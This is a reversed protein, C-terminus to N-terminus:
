VNLLMSDHAPLMACNGEMLANQVGSLLLTRVSDAQWEFVLSANAVKDLFGLASEGLLGDVTVVFAVMSARYKDAMEQYKGIKDREKDRIAALKPANDSKINNLKQESLRAETYQNVVTVDILYRQGGVTADIDVRSGDKLSMGRPEVVATHLHTRLQRAIADRILNHRRNREGGTASCSLAEMTQVRDGCERSCKKGFRPQNILGLRVQVCQKFVPDKPPPAGTPRLFFSAEGSRACAVRLKAEKAALPSKAAAQLRANLVELNHEDIIEQLSDQMKYTGKKNAGSTVFESPRVKEDSGIREGITPIAKRYANIVPDIRYPHSCKTFDLLEEENKKLYTQAQVLSAFYAIPATDHASRMGLGGMKVPISIQRRTNADLDPLDLAHEIVQGVINDFAKAVPLSISPPTTRAFHNMRPEMCHKALMFTGQASLKAAVLRSGFVLQESLFDNTIQRSEFTEVNSNLVTGLSKFAAREVKLGCKSLNLTPEDQHPWVVQCKSKNLTLAIHALTTTTKALIAAADADPAIVIYIDDLVAIVDLVGEIAAIEVLVPQMTIAFLLAGLPDGQRVGESSSIVDLVVGGAGKVIVPSAQGYMAQVLGRLKTMPASNGVADMVKARDITGFANVMDLRLLANKTADPHTSSAARVKHVATEVGGSLLCGLQFAPFLETASQAVERVKYGSFARYFTEPVAIPRVGGKGDKDLPMCQSAALAARAEATLSGACLRRCIEHVAQLGVDTQIIAELHQFTWGSPGATPSHTAQYHVYKVFDGMEAASGLPNVDNGVPDEFPMLQTPGAPLLSRIKDMVQQQSADLLASNMLAQRAQRLFGRRLLYAARGRQRATITAGGGQVDLRWDQAERCEEDEHRPARGGKEGKEETASQPQAAETAPADQAPPSTDSQPADNELVVSIGAVPGVETSAVNCSSASDIPPNKPGFKPASIPEHVDKAASAEDPRASRASQQKDKKEQKNERNAHRAFKRKPYAMLELLAESFDKDTPTAGSGKPRVMRALIPEAGEVFKARVADNDLDVVNGGAAINMATARANQPLETSAPPARLAPPEADKQERAARKSWGSANSKRTDQKDQKAEKKREAKSKKSAKVMM